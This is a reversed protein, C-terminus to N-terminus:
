RQGKQVADGSLKCERRRIVSFVVPCVCIAAATLFFYIEPLKTQAEYRQYFAFAVITTSTATTLVMQTVTPKQM